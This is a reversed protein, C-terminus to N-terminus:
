NYLFKKTIITGNGNNQQQSTVRNESDFTYTCNFTQIIAGSPGSYTITSQLNKYQVPQYMTGPSFLTGTLNTYTYTIISNVTGTASSEIDKIMNGNNDYTYDNKKFLVAGTALSYDYTKFQIMHKATNYIVKQTTSDNTDNYQFTSDLLSQNNVYGFLRITLHTGNIIDLTYATNSNYQYLFKGGSHTSIMSVVRNSADYAINFTDSTNYSPSTVVEIYTKVKSNTNSQVADEKKCSFLFASLM